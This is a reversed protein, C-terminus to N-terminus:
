NRAPMLASNHSKPSLSPYLRLCISLHFCLLLFRILFIFRPRSPFLFCTASDLEEMLREAMDGGQAGAAGRGMWWIVGAINDDKELLGGKKGSEDAEGEEGRRRVKMLELGNERRWLRIRKKRGQEWRVRAKVGGGGSKEYRPRGRRTRMSRKKDGGGTKHWSEYM